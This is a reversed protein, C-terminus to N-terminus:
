RAAPRRSAFDDYGKKRVLQAAILAINAAYKKDTKIPVQSLGAVYM